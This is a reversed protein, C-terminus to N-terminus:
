QQVLRTIATKGHRVGLEVLIEAESEFLRRLQDVLGADCVALDIQTM